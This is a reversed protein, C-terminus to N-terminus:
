KRSKGYIEAALELQEKGKATVGYFVKNKILSHEPRIWMKSLLGRVIKNLYGYEINLKSSMAMMYRVTPDASNLYILVRAESVKIAQKTAM